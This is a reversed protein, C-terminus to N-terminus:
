SRLVVLMSLQRPFKRALQRMADLMAHQEGYVVSVVLVSILQMRRVKHFPRRGTSFTYSILSLYFFAVITILHSFM